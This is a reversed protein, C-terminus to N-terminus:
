GAHPRLSPPSLAAQGAGGPSDVRSAGVAAPPPVNTWRLWVINTGKPEVWEATWGDGECILDAPM